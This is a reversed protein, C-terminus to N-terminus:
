KSLLVGWDLTGVFLGAVCCAAAAWNVKERYLWQGWANCVLIITIAFIPFIMAQEVPTAVEAAWIQFFTGIGMCVGGLVGYFVEQRNPLRKQSAAYILFQIAAAALFIMPMFWQNVADGLTFSLFLGPTEPYNIFLARWQLFMLFLIHLAFAGLAFLGWATKKGSHVTQWGAWFLGAVVLASGVGNWATYVYDFAKGFLLVMFIMPMVTSANLVAFTLGPPGKELAKGLFVMMGALVIGGALGFAAMCSSWAYQGTRVPNLVIAVLFTLFLQIMLFAKSSGGSDISRRMCFNSGAVFLGALIILEIGM